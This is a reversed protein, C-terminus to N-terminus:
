LEQKYIVREIHITLYLAEEKSLQYDYTKQMFEDIKRVCQYANRYKTKVLDFLDDEVGDVYTKNNVVRQAFFKLHTIFRYFYVSDENFDVKFEYKVINSLQQVIASIEMVEEVSSGDMGANVIHLAIFGAEDKPLRVGFREEVMELAKEGIKFEDPYFRKIDYLIANRVEIGEQKRVISTYIHDVLSIYLYDGLKKGLTVKAYSIIEEALLMHEIPIEHVLEQFKHVNEEDSLVFVKEVKAEEIPDGTKKGFGVGRGMVIKENGNEQLVSVVNNNFVRHIIM